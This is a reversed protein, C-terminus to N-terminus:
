EYPDILKSRRHEKSRERAGPEAGAARRRPRGDSPTPRRSSPDATELKAPETPASPPTAEALPPMSGVFADRGLYNPETSLELEANPEVEVAPPAAAGEPENSVIWLMAFAAGLSVMLVAGFRRSRPDTRLSRLWGIADLPLMRLRTLLARGVRSRQAGPVGLL